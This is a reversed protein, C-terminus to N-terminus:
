QAGGQPLLAFNAPDIRRGERKPKLDAGLEAGAADFHGRAHRAVCTRYGASKEACLVKELVLMGDAGSRAAVLDGTVGFLTGAASAFGVADVDALRVAAPRELRVFGALGFTEISTWGGMHSAFDDASGAAAYAQHLIRLQKGDLTNLAGVDGVVVVGPTANRAWERALRDLQPPTRGDAHPAAGEGVLFRLGSGTTGSCACLALAIAPAIYKFQM